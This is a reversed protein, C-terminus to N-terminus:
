LILYASSGAVMKVENVKNLMSRKGRVGKRLSEEQTHARQVADSGSGWCGGGQAGTHVGIVSETTNL